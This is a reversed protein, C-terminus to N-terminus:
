LALKFLCPLLTISSTEVQMVFMSLWAILNGQQLQLIHKKIFLQIHVIRGEDSQRYSASVISTGGLNLSKGFRITLCELQVRRHHYLVTTEPQTHPDRWSLLHFIPLFIVSLAHTFIKSQQTCQMENSITHLVSSHLINSDIMM